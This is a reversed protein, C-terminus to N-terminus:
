VYKSLPLSSYLCRPLLAVLCRPLSLPLFASVFAVLCLPVFANLEKCGINEAKQRRAENCKM